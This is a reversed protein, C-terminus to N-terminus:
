IPLSRTVSETHRTYIRIRIRTELGEGRNDVSLWLGSYDGYGEILM